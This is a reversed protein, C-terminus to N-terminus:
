IGKKLPASGYFGSEGNQDVLVDTYSESFKDVLEDWSFCKPFGEEIKTKEMYQNALEESSFVFLIGPGGISATEEKNRIVWVPDPHSISIKIGCETNVMVGPVVEQFKEM